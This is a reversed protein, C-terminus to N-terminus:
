KSTLSLGDNKIFGFAKMYPKFGSRLMAGVGNSTITAGAIADIEHDPAKLGGKVVNISVYKNGDMIQKKTDTFLDTFSDDTIKAGLGPTESKHDFVVGAITNRDEALAIYGWIPGWLGNGAMPIIYKTNGGDKFTFMPFRRNEIDNKTSKYEKVIDIDFANVGDVENGGYNFVSQTVSKEFLESVQKKNMEKLEDMTYAGAASLIFQRKENDVNATQMTKLSTALIALLSGCAVVLVIAFTVTYSTSNKNIAM